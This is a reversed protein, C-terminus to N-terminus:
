RRAQAVRLTPGPISGNYGLMRVVVDGIQKRVAVARLELADGDRLVVTESCKAEPLGGTDRSFSSDVSAVPGGHHRSHHQHQEM